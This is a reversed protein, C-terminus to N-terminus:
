VTYTCELYPCQVQSFHHEVPPHSTLHEKTSRVSMREQAIVIKTWCKGNNDDDDHIIVTANAPDLSVTPDSTALTLCFSEQAEPIIDDNIAVQTCLQM